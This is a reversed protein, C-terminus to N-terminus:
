LASPVDEDGLADEPVEAVIPAAEKCRTRHSHVEKNNHMASTM